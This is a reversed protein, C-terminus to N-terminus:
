NKNSKLKEDVSQHFSQFANSVKSREADHEHCCIKLLSEDNVEKNMVMKFTCRENQLINCILETISVFKKNTLVFKM